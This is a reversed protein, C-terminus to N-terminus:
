IGRNTFEICRAGGDVCAIGSILEPHKAALAVVVNGGYSQGAVVPQGDLLPVLDGVVTDFDYGDDPKPSRGHGRLDVSISAFGCAALAEGVGDWMRANSALGHVLVFRPSATPDGYRITHLPVM